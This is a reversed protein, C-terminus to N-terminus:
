HGSVHHQFCVNYSRTGSRSFAEIQSKLLHFLYPSCVEVKNLQHSLETTSACSPGFYDDLVCWM